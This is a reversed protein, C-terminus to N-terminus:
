YNVYFYLSNNPKQVFFIFTDIPSKLPWIFGNAPNIKIYTKLTKLEEPGLSSVISLGM